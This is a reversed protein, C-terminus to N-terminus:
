RNDEIVVDPVSRMVPRRLDPDGEALCRFVLETGPLAGGFVPRPASKITDPMMVKGLSECYANAELIADRKAGEGTQLDSRATRSIM